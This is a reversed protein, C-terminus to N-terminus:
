SIVQATHQQMHDYRRSWDVSSEVEAGVPISAPLSIQVSSPPFSPEEVKSVSLVDFSVVSGIPDFWSIRGYDSPQGGGEPYLVSDDLIVIFTENDKEDRVPTCSLVKNVCSRLYSNKQSSYMTSMTAVPRSFNFRFGCTIIGVFRGTGIRPLIPISIAPM